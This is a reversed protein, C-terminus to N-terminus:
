KASSSKDTCWRNWQNFNPHYVVCQQRQQHTVQGQFQELIRRAHLLPLKADSGGLASETVQEAGDVHPLEGRLLQVRVAVFYFYNENEENFSVLSLTPTPLGLLHEVSQLLRNHLRDAARRPQVLGTSAFGDAFRLVQSGVKHRGVQEEVAGEQLIRDFVYDGQWKRVRYFSLSSFSIFIFYIFSLYFFYM